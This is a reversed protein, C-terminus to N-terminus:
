MIVCNHLLILRTTLRRSSGPSPRGGGDVLVVEDTHPVLAHGLRGVAVGVFLLPIIFGGRRGSALTVV